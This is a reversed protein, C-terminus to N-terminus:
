GNPQGTLLFRFSAAPNPRWYHVASGDAVDLLLEDARVVGTTILRFGSVVLPRKGAMISGALLDFDGCVSSEIM